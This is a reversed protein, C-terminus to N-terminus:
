HANCGPQKKSLSGASALLAALVDPLQGKDKAWCQSHDWRAHTVKELCQM